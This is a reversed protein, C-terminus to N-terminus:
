NASAGDLGSRCCASAPLPKSTEWYLEWTPLLLFLLSQLWIVEGLLGRSPTEGLYFRITGRGGLAPLNGQAPPGPLWPVDIWGGKFVLIFVSTEGAWRRALTGGLKIHRSPRLWRWSM